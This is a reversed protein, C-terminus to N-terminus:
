KMEVKVADAVDVAVRFRFAVAFAVALADRVDVM